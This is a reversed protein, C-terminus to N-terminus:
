KNRCLWILLTNPKYNTDMFFLLYHYKGTESQTTYLFNITASEPNYDSFNYTIPINARTNFDVTGNPWDVAYNMAPGAFYGELNVRANDPYPANFETPLGASTPLDHISSNTIDDITTYFQANYDSNSKSFPYASSVVLTLSDTAQTTGTTTIILEPFTYQFSSVSTQFLQMM